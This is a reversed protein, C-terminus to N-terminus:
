LNWFIVYYWGTIHFLLLMDIVVWYYAGSLAIDDLKRGRGDAFYKGTQDFTSCSKIFKPCTSEANSLNLLQFGQMAYILMGLSTWMLQMSFGIRLRLHWGNTIEPDTQMECRCCRPSHTSCVMESKWCARYYGGLLIRFSYCHTVLWIVKSILDKHYHSLALSTCNM